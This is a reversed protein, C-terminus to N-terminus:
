GYRHGKGFIEEDWDIQTATTGSSGRYASGSGYFGSGTYGSGYSRVGNDATSVEDERKKDKDKKGDKKDASAKSAAGGVWYSSNGSTTPQVSKKADALFSTMDFEMDTLSVDIDKTEYLTNSPFDYIKINREMSKNWIMFIYFQTDDMQTVIQNQHAMDVGSPTVSMRVHSHGQMHLHNYTEDDLEMKWRDYAEQDTNVTAGTVRQPYVLIDSIVFTTEDVRHVVGHWAVESDFGQILANMQLWAKPTFKVSMRESEGDWVFEQSISVKGDDLRTSTLKKRFEEVMQEAIEATVKIPKPM